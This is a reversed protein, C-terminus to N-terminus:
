SMCSGFPSAPEPRWGFAELGQQTRLRRLVGGCPDDSETSQQGIFRAMNKNALLLNRQIHRMRVSKLVRSQGPGFPREVIPSEEHTQAHALQLHSKVFSNM